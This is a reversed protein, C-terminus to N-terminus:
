KTYAAIFMAKLESIKNRLKTKRDNLSVYGAMRDIPRLFNRVEDFAQCFRQATKFEGFGLM